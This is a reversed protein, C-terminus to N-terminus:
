MGTMGSNGTLLRLVVVTGDEARVKRAANCLTGQCTLQKEPCMQMYSPMKGSLDCIRRRRGRKKVTPVRIIEWVLHACQMAACSGTEPRM